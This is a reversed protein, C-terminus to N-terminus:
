RTASHVTLEPLLAGLKGSIQQAEEQLRRVLGAVSQKSVREAPGAIAM